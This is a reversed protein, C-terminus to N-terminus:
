HEYLQPGWKGQAKLIMEIVERVAGEGGRRGTVYHAAHKVEPVANAVAVAFGVRKLIVLDVLDDGMFCVDGDQLGFDKLLQEYASIKPYVATFIRDIQLDEGRVHVAKSARASIIATKIGTQRLLFLAFGDQVDFNKSEVGNDDVIIKGDTMVGDVDLVLMKIRALAQRM